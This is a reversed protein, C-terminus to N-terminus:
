VEPMKIHNAEALEVVIDWVAKEKSDLESLNSQNILTIKYAKKAIWKSM